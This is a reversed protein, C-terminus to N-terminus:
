TRVSAGGPARRRATRRHGTSGRLSSCTGCFVATGLSTGSGSGSIGLEREGSERNPRSVPVRLSDGVNGSEAPPVPFCPGPVKFCPAGTERNPRSRSESDPGPDRNAAFRSIPAVGRLIHTCCASGTARDQAPTLVPAHSARQSSPCPVLVTRSPALVPSGEPKM